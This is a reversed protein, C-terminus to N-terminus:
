HENKDQGHELISIICDIQKMWHKREEEWRKREEEIGDNKGQRYAESIQRQAEFDNMENELIELYNLIM